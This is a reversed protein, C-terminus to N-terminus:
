SEEGEAGHAWLVRGLGDGTLWDPLTGWSIEDGFATEDDIFDRLRSLLAQAIARADGLLEGVTRDRWRHGDGDGHVDDHSDDLACEYMGSPDEAGCRLHIDHERFAEVIAPDDAYQDLSDLHTDWDEGRFVGILASCVRTKVDDGAGGDILADAVTNFYGGASGWGM